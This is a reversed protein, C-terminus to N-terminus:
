RGWRRRREQAALELRVCDELLAYNEGHTRAAWLCRGQAAPSLSSWTETLNSHAAQERRECAERMEGSRVFGAVVAVRGCHGSVDYRPLQGGAAASVPWTLLTAAVILRIGM